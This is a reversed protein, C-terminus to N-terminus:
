QKTFPIVVNGSQTTAKLIYLGAPVNGPMSVQKNITGGSIAFADKLIVRGALDTVLIDMKDDATNTTGSLSFTGNNPNPYMKVDKGEQTFTSTGTIPGLISNSQGSCGDLTVIVYYTGYNIMQCTQNQAGWILQNDWYWQYTDYPTTTSLVYNNLTITPTPAPKVTVNLTVPASSGCANDATVSITGGTTGSTPSIASWPGTGSWGAPLTWTYTDAYPPSDTYYNNVTGPCVSTPGYIATLPSPPGPFVTVTLAASTDKCGGLSTVVTYDGDATATYTNTNAAPIVLNNKRWQYTYGPGSPTSLVVQGGTCFSTPGGATISATPTPNVTVSIVNSTDNCQANETMIVRYNGSATAYLGPNNQAPMDVNNQQWQYAMFQWNNPDNDQLLVNDGQCFTTPGNASITVHPDFVLIELSDVPSYGCGDSAYVYITGSTANSTVTISNTSSAGTWGVPISWYYTTAGAVSTTYTNTSNRCIYPDGSIATNVLAQCNSFKSVFANYSSGFANNNTQYCNPTSINTASSTYGAFYINGGGDFCLSNGLGVFDEEPGGYYTGWLINGSADFKAIYNDNYIPNFNYEQYSGATAMGSGSTSSGGIYVGSADQVMAAGFEDGTGGLYTAWQRAGGSNFKILIADSLGAVATQYAGASALGSSSVQGSVYLNGSADRAVVYGFDDDVGGYYTGWNRVTGTANINALFADYSGGNAPQYSVASAIATTSSTYGVLIPENTSSHCIYTINDDGAGGYYTAWQRGGSSNFQAVLGDQGGGITTQMASASAMGSSVTYGGVNIKGTGEIDVAYFADDGTGGCYTAWTRAGASTFKALLGDHLGGGYSSQFVTGASMGSTSSTTGVIYLNGSGDSTIGYLYEEGTGGYYTAWTRNSLSADLKVIMGDYNGGGYVTQHAGISAINSTSSAYGTLYVSSGDYAVACGLDTASGGYYTACVLSPDITLVGTYSGINFSLVDDRLDFSSNVKSGDQQYSYPAQETVTGMPTSASLSGDKNVKIDSAGSYKIRIDEPHGGAKVVFEYEPQGNKIKLVWDIHPYVDHYIIKGYSRATAGDKGCQPLYYSEYYANQELVEAKANANAGLLEVDMRYMEVPGSVEPTSFPNIKKGAVPMKSFQYHIQGKGIFANTGKLHLAFQVDPRPQLYQDTVQGKNELFVIQNGASSVNPIQQKAAVTLFSSALALSLLNKLIM